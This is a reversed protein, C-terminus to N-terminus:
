SLLREAAQLADEATISRMCKRSKCKPKYCPSCVVDKKLVISNKAAPLHRRPDTPGFLAVFPTDM